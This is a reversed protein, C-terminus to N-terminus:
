IVVGCIHKFLPWTFILKVLFNNHSKTIHYELLSYYFIGNLLFISKALVLTEAYTPNGFFKFYNQFGEFM